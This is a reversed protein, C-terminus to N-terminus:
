DAQVCILSSRGQQVPVGSIYLVSSSQRTLIKFKSPLLWDGILANDDSLKAVPIWFCSVGM